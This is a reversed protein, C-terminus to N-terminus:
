GTRGSALIDDVAIEFWGVDQDIKVVIGFDTVKAERMDLLTTIHGARVTGCAGRDIHGRLHEVLHADDRNTTKRNRAYRIQTDQQTTITITWDFLM